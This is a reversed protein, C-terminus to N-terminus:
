EEKMIFMNPEPPINTDIYYGDKIIDVRTAAMCHGAEYIPDVLKTNFGRQGKPWNFLMKEDKDWYYTKKDFVGYSGEKDTNIFDLFFTEMTSQTLMPQTGSFSIIYKYPVTTHWELIKLM